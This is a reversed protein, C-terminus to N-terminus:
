QAFRFAYGAYENGEYLVVLWTKPDFALPYAERQAIAGARVELDSLQCYPQPVLQRIKEQPSREPIALLKALTERSLVTSPQVVTHCIDRKFSKAIVGTQHGSFDGFFALAALAWGSIIYIIQSIALSKPRRSYPGITQGPGPHQGSYPPANRLQEPFHSPPYDTSTQERLQTDATYPPAASPPPAVYASAQHPSTHAPYPPIPPHYHRAPPNINHHSSQASPSVPPNSQTPWSEPM